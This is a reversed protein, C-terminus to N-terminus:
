NNENRCECIRKWDESDNYNYMDKMRQQLWFPIIYDDLYREFMIRNDKKLKVGKTVNKRIFEVGKRIDGKDIVTLVDFMPLIEKIIDNDFKM